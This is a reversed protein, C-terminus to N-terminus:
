LGEASETDEEGADLALRSEAGHDIRVAEAKHDDTM